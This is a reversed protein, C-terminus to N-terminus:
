HLMDRTHRLVYIVHTKSVVITDYWCFYLYELVRFCCPISFYHVMSCQYQEITWKKEEHAIPSGIFTNLYSFSLSTYVYVKGTLTTSLILGVEKQWFTLLKLM